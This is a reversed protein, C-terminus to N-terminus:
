RVAPNKADFSIRWLKSSGFAPPMPPFPASRLVARRAIEDFEPIGSPRVLAVNVVRGDALITFEIIAVGQRGLAAKDKPFALGWAAYLRGFVMRVYAGLAPDAPKVEPSAGTGQGGARSTSGSGPDGGSGPTGPGEEGGRGEGAPGGAPSAHLLSQTTSSVEQESDANDRPRDAAAAPVAPRGRTVSPRAFAVDAGEHHNQRENGDPAGRMPSSRARGVTANGEPRAAEGEGPPQTAGGPAGGRVSPSSAGREGRSPDTDAVPRREQRTGKGSVLFTLEMPNWTARRDELSARDSATHLRQVQSRDLRSLLDKSLLLGADHDALNLAAQGAPDGGRGQRQQDLRPVAAGGPPQPAAQSSSEPAVVQPGDALSMPPLDIEFTEERPALAVAKAAVPPAGEPHAALRAVLAASGGLGAAHILLSLLLPVGRERERERGREQEREREGRQGQPLPPSPPTLNRRRVLDAALFATLSSDHPPRSPM